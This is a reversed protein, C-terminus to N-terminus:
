QEEFTEMQLVLFPAASAQQPGEFNVDCCGRSFYLPNFRGTQTLSSTPQSFSRDTRQAALQDAPLHTLSHTLLLPLSNNLWDYCWTLWDCENLWAALWNAVSKILGDTPRDTLWGLLGFLWLSNILYEFCGIIHARDKLQITHWIQTRRCQINIMHM